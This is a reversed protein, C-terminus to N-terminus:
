QGLGPGLLRRSVLDPPSETPSSGRNRYGSWGFRFRCGARRDCHCSTCIKAYIKTGFTKVALGSRCERRVQSDHTFQLVGALRIPDHFDNRRKGSVTRAGPSM